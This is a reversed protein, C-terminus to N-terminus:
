VREPETVRAVPAPAPPHGPATARRAAPAEELVVHANIGGFGFANVAARRTPEDPDRDWPRAQALTRFRTAGLRPHPDDCHLTPLLT